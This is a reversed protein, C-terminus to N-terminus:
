NGRPSFAMATFRGTNATLTALKRRKATDWVEITEDQRWVALLKGNAAYQVQQVPSQNESAPNLRKGTATEYIGITDRGVAVKKSDPSYAISVVCWRHAKWPAVRHKNAAIDWIHVMGDPYTGYTLSKGEPALALCRVDHTEDGYRRFEKGTAVDWARITNDGGGSILKTGGASFVLSNVGEQHGRFARVLKGSAVDLLQIGKEPLSL